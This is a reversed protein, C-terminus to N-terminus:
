RKNRQGGNEKEKDLFIVMVCIGMILGFLYGIIFSM